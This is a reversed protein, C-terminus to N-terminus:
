RSKLDMDDNVFSGLNLIDYKAERSIQILEMGCCVFDLWAYIM